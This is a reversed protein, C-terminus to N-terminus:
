NISDIDNDFTRSATFEELSRVADINKSGEVM